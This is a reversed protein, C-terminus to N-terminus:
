HHKSGQHKGGHQSTAATTGAGTADGLARLDFSV